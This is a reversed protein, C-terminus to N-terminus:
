ELGQVYLIYNAPQGGMERIALMFPFQQGPDLRATIETFAAAIVRGAADFITAVARPNRIVRESTNTANGSITLAGDSELKFDEQWTLVDQSYVVRSHDIEWHQNGLILDYETMQASQGQGFRLSFPAYGGPPVGHGMVTDLAEALPLGDTSRLVARIPIDTLLLSSNNAVEGTIFLVGTPSTWSAVHLFALETTASSALVSLEAPQLSAGQNIVFTNIVQELEILRAPDDPLTLEIIGLFSGAHDIFTNIQRTEGGPMGQLGTMRWSGDGMAERSLESYQTVGPRIQSQYHDIVESLAVSDLPRGTNIVSLRLSPETDGPASFTSAALTTTNQEYLTWTRPVAISFAGGPHAYVLPSLDPPPPTPAFVVAGGSCGTVFFIFSAVWALRALIGGWTIRM